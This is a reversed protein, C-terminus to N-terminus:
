WASLLQRLLVLHGRLEEDSIAALQHQGGLARLIASEYKSYRHSTWNLQCCRLVMHRICQKRLRNTDWCWKKSCFITKWMTKTVLM